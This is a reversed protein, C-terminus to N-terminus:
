FVKRQILRPLSITSSQSFQSRYSCNESSTTHSSGTLVLGRYPWSKWHGATARCLEHLSYRQPERKAVGRWSQVLEQSTRWSVSRLTLWQKSAAGEGGQRSSLVLSATTPCSIDGHRKSQSPLYSLLPSITDGRRWM